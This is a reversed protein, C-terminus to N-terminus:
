PNEPLYIGAEELRRKAREREQEQSKRTVENNHQSAITIDRKWEYYGGRKYFNLADYSGDPGLSWGGFRQDSGSQPPALHDYVIMKKKFFNFPGTKVYGYNLNFPANDSYRFVARFQPVIDFYFIDAGFYVQNKDNPDLTLVEVFKINSSQDFGNWGLLIYADQRITKGSESDTYKITRIPFEQEFRPPYYIGGLWNKHSLIQNEVDMPISQMEILPIVIYETQGQADIWKRQILGFYYHYTEPVHIGSPQDIIQWTFIRFRKDEAYIHSISTLSDFPYNFSSPKRLTQILAQTFRKNIQLKAELSKDSFLTEAQEVLKREVEQLNQSQTVLLLGIQLFIVWYLSLKSM